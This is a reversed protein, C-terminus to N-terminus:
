ISFQYRFGTCLMADPVTCISRCARRCEAKDLELRGERGNCAKRVCGVAIFFKFDGEINYLSLAM